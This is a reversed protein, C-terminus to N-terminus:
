GGTTPSEGMIGPPIPEIKGQRDVCVLLTQAEALLEQGRYFAYRHEIKVGASPLLEVHLRLLDDYFAPRRYQIALKSVVILIGRAEIEKYTLGRRRLLDTRGIEMWVPYNSHHAVNMPDCEVYRVRIEVDGQQVPVVSSSHKMM